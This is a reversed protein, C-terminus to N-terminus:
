RRLQASIPMAMIVIEVALKADICREILSIFLWGAVFVWDLMAVFFSLVCSVRVMDLRKEKYFFYFRAGAHM